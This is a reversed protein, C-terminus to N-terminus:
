VITFTGIFKVADEPEFNELIQIIGKMVAEAQNVKLPKVAEVMIIDDSDEVYIEIGQVDAIIKFHENEATLPDTGDEFKEAGSFAYWDQKTFRKIKM